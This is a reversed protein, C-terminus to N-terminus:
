KFQNYRSSNENKLQNFKVNVFYGFIVFMMIPLKYRLITFNNFVILSHLLYSIMLV